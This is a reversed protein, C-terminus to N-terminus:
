NLEGPIFFDLKKECIYTTRNKSHEWKLLCSIKNPTQNIFMILTNRASIKQLLM